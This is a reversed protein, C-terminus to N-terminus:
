SDLVPLEIVSMARTLSLLPSTVGVGHVSQKQISGLWDVELHAWAM